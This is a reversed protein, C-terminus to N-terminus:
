ENRLAVVPDGRSARLAPLYNSALAVGALVVSVTAFTAADTTSVGYLLAALLRTLIFALILGIALGIATLQMGQVVILRRVASGDAGLAMRIGIEHTRQAVSYSMVGYIGVAALVLSLGAFMSLLLMSFREQALTDAIMGELTEAQSLPVSPDMERVAARVASLAALPETGTRAVVNLNRVPGALMGYQRYDMFMEPRPEQGLGRSRVDGVIGIVEHWTEPGFLSIRQGIPDQNPWFRSAMTESIVMALRTTDRHLDSFTEGRVTTMGMTRFYDPSVIRYDANPSSEGQPVPQGEIQFSWDFTNEGFPLLNAFGAATVGPLGRVRDLLQEAFASVPQVGDYRAPPLFMGVALVSSPNVGPDQSRLYRFSKITLGAGIALLLALAIEAVALGQRLRLRGGGVTAGRDGERLSAQLNTRSLQLAPVMGFLLGTVLALAATFGLVPVNISVVDARPVSSPDVTLLARVGVMALGIAVIAGGVSLVTAETFLQSILRRRGAGLAARVAMERHRVEARALMLNAANACAILLVFGVTGLLVILAPRVDGVVHEHLGVATGSFGEPFGFEERVYATVAKVNQDAAGVELGARLRGVVNYNHGGIGQTSAPDLTLATWIEAPRLSSFETPLRFAGPLVGVIRFSTGNVEITQGVANPDGGLMRQWTGHSLLVVPEANPQTEEPLFNRGLVPQVGLTPLLSGTMSAARVQEPVEGGSLNVSRTHGYAGLAEFAENRQRLFNYEPWSFWFQSFGLADFETFARVLREPQQYPLPRLLVGYVVSFIATNAGVGLGLTLVAVATFVPARLLTRMAYRLDQLLNSM